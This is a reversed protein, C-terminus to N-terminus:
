VWRRPLRLFPAASPVSVVPNMLLVRNCVKNCVSAPYLLLIKACVQGLVKLSTCEHLECVKNNLINNKTTGADTM